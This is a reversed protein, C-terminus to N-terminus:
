PQNPISIRIPDRHRPLVPWLPWTKKIDTVSGSLERFFSLPKRRSRVIEVLPLCTHLPSAASKTAERKRWLKEPAGCPRCPPPRPLAALPWSESFFISIKKHAFGLYNRESFYFLRYLIKSITFYVNLQKKCISEAVSNQYRSFWNCCGVFGTHPLQTHGGRWLHIDMIRPPTPPPPICSRPTLKRM